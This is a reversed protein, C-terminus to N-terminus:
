SASSVLLGASLTAGTSSLTNVVHSSVIFTTSGFSLFVDGLSLGLTKADDIFGAAAVETQVHTSRYRWDKPGTMPAAHLWPPNPSTSTTGAYAM